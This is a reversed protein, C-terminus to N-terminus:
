PVLENNESQEQEEKIKALEERQGQEFRAEKQKMIQRWMAQAFRREEVSFERGMMNRWITKTLEHTSSDEGDLEFVEWELAHFLPLESMAAQVGMFNETVSLTEDLNLVSHATYSPM